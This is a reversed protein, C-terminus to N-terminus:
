KKKKTMLKNKTATSKKIKRKPKLVSVDKVVSKKSKKPSRQAAVVEEVVHNDDEIEDIINDNDNVNQYINDQDYESVFEKSEVIGQDKIPHFVNIPIVYLPVYIQHSKNNDKEQPCFSVETDKANTTEVGTLGLM